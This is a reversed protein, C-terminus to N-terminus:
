ASTDSPKSLQPLLIGTREEDNVPDEEGVQLMKLESCVGGRAKRAAKNQLVPHPQCVQYIQLTFLGVSIVKSEIQCDPGLERRGRGTDSVWEVPKVNGVALTKNIM